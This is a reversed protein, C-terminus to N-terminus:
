WIMSFIRTYKGLDTYKGNSVSFFLFFWFCFQIRSFLFSFFFFHPNLLVFINPSQTHTHTHNIIFSLTFVSLELVLNFGHSDWEQFILFERLGMGLRQLSKSLSFFFHGSSDRTATESLFSFGPSLIVRM